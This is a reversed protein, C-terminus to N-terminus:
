TTFFDYIITKIANFKISIRSSIINYTTKKRTTQRNIYNKFKIRLFSGFVGFIFLFVHKTITNENMVKHVIIEAHKSANTEGKM